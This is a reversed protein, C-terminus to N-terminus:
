FPAGDDPTREAAPLRAPPPAPETGDLKLYKKVKLKGEEFKDDVVTLVKVRRGIFDIPAMSEGKKFGIGKLKAIGMGAAKGELMIWDDVFGSPELRISLRLYKANREITEDYKKSTGPECKTITGYSEGGTPGANWDVNIPDYNSESM